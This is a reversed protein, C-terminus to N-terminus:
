SVIQCDGENTSLLITEANNTKKKVFVLGRSQWDPINVADFASYTRGKYFTHAKGFGALQRTELMKIKM